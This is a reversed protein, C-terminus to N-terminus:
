NKRLIYFGSSVPVGNVHPDKYSINHTTRVLTATITDAKRDGYELISAIEDGDKGGAINLYVTMRYRSDPDAHPAVINLHKPNDLHPHNQLQKTGNVLYYHQLDSYQIADTQTPNLLDRGDGSIIELGFVAYFNFGAMSGPVSEAKECSGLLVASLALFLFFYTRKMAKFIIFWRKEM